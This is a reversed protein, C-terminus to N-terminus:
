ASAAELSHPDLWQQLDAVPRFDLLAEGLDDLQAATLTDLRATLTDPVPGVRRRLLRLILTEKGQLIGTLEWSTVIEVTDERETPAFKDVARQYHKMEEATLKLSSDVFSGILKTHAPDLKLSVLLRLCEAKVKPRDKASMKMKAM